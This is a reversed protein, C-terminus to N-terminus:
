HTISVDPCHENVWSLYDKECQWAKEPIVIPMCGISKTEPCAYIACTGSADPFNSTIKCSYGTLCQNEPLNAAIGGCTKGEATTTPTVVITPTPIITKKMKNKESAFNAYLAIVLGLSIVIVIVLLLMIWKLAGMHNGSSSAKPPPFPHQAPATATKIATATALKQEVQEQISPHHPLLVSSPDQAPKEQTDM